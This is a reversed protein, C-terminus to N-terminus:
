KTKWESCVPSTETYVIFFHELVWVMAQQFGACAFDLFAQEGLGLQSMFECSKVRLGELSCEGFGDSFSSLGKMGVPLGGGKSDGGCCCHCLSPGAVLHVRNLGLVCTTLWPMRPLFSHEKLVGVLKTGKISGTTIGGPIQPIVKCHLQEFLACKVACGNISSTCCTAGAELLKDLSVLHTTGESM